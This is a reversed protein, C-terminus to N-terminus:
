GLKAARALMAPTATADGPRPAGPHICKAPCGEGAKVLDAFTGASLDGLYAQKDSNYLFLKPNVKMCDNCSTCLFTDIYADASPAAEATPAVAVVPAAAVVAPAVPAPAPTRVVPAMSGPNTLAAVLRGVANRAGEQRGEERAAQERAKAREEAEARARAVARDVFSNGIGAMEELLRYARLRDRCLSALERTMVARQRVGAADLVWLYPVALPARDKFAALYDGLEIQEEDWDTQPIVRFHRLWEASLAAAHVPTLSEALESRDLVFRESWTEGSLPNYTYLPFARSRHMWAPADTIAAVGPGHFLAMERLADVMREPRALSEQVVYAERLALARYGTDSDSLGSCPILLHVPLGECVVAEFGDTTAALVAVAPLAALDSAEAAHWDIRQIRSDHVEPVYGSEVELRAVRFARLGAALRDLSKRCYNVAAALPETALMARGGAAHVGAPEAGAHFLLFLPATELSRISDGLAAAANEMRERRTADLGKTGKAARKMAVALAGANLFATAEVGMSEALEEASHSHDAALLDTLKHHMQRFRRLLEGQAGQRVTSVAASYLTVLSQAQAQDGGLDMGVPHLPSAPEYEELGRGTLHFTRLQEQFSM